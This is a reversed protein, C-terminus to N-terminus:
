SPRRHARWRRRRLSVPAAGDIMEAHVAAHVHLDARQRLRDAREASVDGAAAREDIEKVMARPRKQKRRRVRRGDGGRADRREVHQHLLRLDDIAEPLVRAEELRAECASPKSVPTLSLGIVGTITPSAASAIFSESRRNSCPTNACPM